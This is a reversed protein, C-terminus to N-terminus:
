AVAVMCRSLPGSSNTTRLSLGLFSRYTLERLGRHVGDPSCVGRAAV